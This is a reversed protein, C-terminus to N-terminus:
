GVNRNGELFHLQAVKVKKRGDRIKDPDMGNDRLYKATTTALQHRLLSQIESLTVGEHYLVRARLHRLAHFSFYKVGARKCLKEMLHQRNTFPQGYHPLSFQSEDSCVFVYETNKIPRVEYWKVLETRLEDVMTVWDYERNGSSRKRTWLRVQDYNWDIDPWKLSFVENRRAALYYTVLLMVRDLEETIGIVKWFDEVPPVYRPKEIKPYKPIAQFPNANDLPFRDRLINRGFEWAASLNKRYKNVANGTRKKFETDLFDACMKTTLMAVPTDAPIFKLFAKLV